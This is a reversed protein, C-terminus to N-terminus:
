PNGVVEPGIGRIGCNYFNGEKKVSKDKRKNEASKSKGKASILAKEM